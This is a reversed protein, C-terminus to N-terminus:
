FWSSFTWKRVEDNTSNTTVYEIEAENCWLPGTTITCGAPITHTATIAESCPVSIQFETTTHHIDSLGNNETFLTM